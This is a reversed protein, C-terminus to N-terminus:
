GDCSSPQRLARSDAFSLPNPANRNEDAVVASTTSRLSGSHRTENRWHIPDARTHSASCSRQLDAWVDVALGSMIFRKDRMRRNCVFITNGRCPPKFVCSRSLLDMRSSLIKPFTSLVEMGCRSIAYTACRCMGRRGGFSPTRDLWDTVLSAGSFDSTSAKRESSSNINADIDAASSRSIVGNTERSKLDDIFARSVVSPAEGMCVVSRVGVTSLIPRWRMTSHTLRAFLYGPFLPRLVERVQRAHRIQKRLVPVYVEYGQNRLHMEATHERNPHVNVAIWAADDATSSDM